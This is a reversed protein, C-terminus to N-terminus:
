RTLRASGNWRPTRTPLLARVGILLTGFKPNSAGFTEFEAFGFWLPPKQFLGGVPGWFPPEGHVNVVFVFGPSPAPRAPLPLRKPLGSAGSPVWAAKRCFVPLM